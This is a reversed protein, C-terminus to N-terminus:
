PIERMPSIKGRPIDAAENDSWVRWNGRGSSQARLAQTM